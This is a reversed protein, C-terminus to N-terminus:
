LNTTITSIDIILNACQACRVKYAGTIMFASNGCANCHLLTDDPEVERIFEVVNDPLPEPEQDKPFHSKFFAEIRSAITSNKNESM